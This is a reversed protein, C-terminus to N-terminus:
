KKIYVKFTDVRPQGFVHHDRGSREVQGGDVTGEPERFSLV